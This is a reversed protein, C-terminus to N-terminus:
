VDTIDLNLRAQGLQPVSVCLPLILIANFGNSNLSSVGCSLSARSRASLFVFVTASFAMFTLSDFFFFFHSNIGRPGLPM